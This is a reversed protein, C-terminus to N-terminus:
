SSAALEQQEVAAAFGPHVNTLTVWRRSADLSVGVAQRAVRRDLVLGAVVFGIGLLVWALLFPGRNGLGLGVVPATVGAAFAAFRSRKLERERRYAAETEPLRVTLYERGPALVMLLFFTLAGVPGLLFLLAAAGFHDSGVPRQMRILMDTPEGTKVCALPLEGRIADDVFVSVATM